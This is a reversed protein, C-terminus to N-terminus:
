RQSYRYKTVFCNAMTARFSFYLCVIQIALWSTFMSQAAAFKREDTVNELHADPLKNFVFFIITIAILGFLILNIVLTLTGETYAEGLSENSRTQKNSVFEVSSLMGNQALLALSPFIVILLFGILTWIISLSEYNIFHVFGLDIFLVISSALLFLSQVGFTWASFTAM